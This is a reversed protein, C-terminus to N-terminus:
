PKWGQNGVECILTPPTVKLHLYGLARLLNHEVEM